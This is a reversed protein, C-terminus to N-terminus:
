HGAKVYGSPHFIHVFRKLFNQNYDPKPLESLVHEYAEIYQQTMTKYSFLQRARSAVYERDMTFCENLHHYGEIFDEVLLGTRGQEILEPMAGRTIAMTPTGCYAAEIVTLGFPERFSTPHLNVKAHSILEVKDKFGLEGLYEVLPHKLYPAIEEEFYSEGKHDIKGALKIKIGQSLALKIAMHPNKDRDFRGLFCVYDDPQTVVPFDDPDEGNYVVGAYQLGPFSDQYNKSISAYYLDQRKSYYGIQEFEIPNHLTTLNPFTSFKKLDFGHSHIIDIEPLLDRLIKETTRNARNVQATHARIDKKERPFYLAEDVTPILRCDVKSNGPALLIPTHGQEKLGKILHHVIQEIGGYSQPPIPVYPEAVIAVRM